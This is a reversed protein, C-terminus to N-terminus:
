SIARYSIDYVSPGYVILLAADQMYYGLHPSGGTSCYSLIVHVLFEITSGNEREPKTPGLPGELLMQIM